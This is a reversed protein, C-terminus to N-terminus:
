RRRSYKRSNYKLNGHKEKKFSTFLICLTMWVMFSAFSVVIVSVPSFAGNLFKYYIECVPIFVGIFLPLSLNKLINKYYLKVIIGIFIGLVIYELFRIGVVFDDIGFRYGLGAGSFFNNLSSVIYSRDDVAGIDAYSNVFIWVLLAATFAFTILKPTKKEIM